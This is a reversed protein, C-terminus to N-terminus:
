FLYNQLKQDVNKQMILNFKAMLKEVLNYWIKRRDSLSTAESVTISQQAKGTVFAQRINKEDLIELRAEIFTEFRHSQQNKFIGVLSKDLELKVEQAEARIIIMQATNKNGAISLRDKAWRIIAKEPSVPLKYAVHPADFSLKVNSILKIDSVMLKIAPLYKFTMTPFNQQNTTTQCATLMCFACLFLM